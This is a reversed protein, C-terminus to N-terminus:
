SSGRHVAGSLDIQFIYRNGHENRAPLLSVFGGISDLLQQVIFLGLGRGQPKTSVFPQILTNEVSSDVGRGNDAIRVWPAECTVMITPESVRQGRQAEKLWYESNLVLNDVIQILRGRNMRVRFTKFPEGIEFVIQSDRFRDTYFEQLEDFLDRLDIVERSERVYKLSPALHSIQKRLAAAASLVHETFETIEARQIGDRRLRRLFARTRSALSDAVQHIEHSLAEAILGLGALESFEEIQTELTRIKPEMYDAMEGVKRAQPLFATIEALLAGAEELMSAADSPLPADKKRRGGHVAKGVDDLRHSLQDSRQELEKAEVSTKRMEAIPAALSEFGALEGGRKAEYENYSRRLKEYANNIIKTAEGMLLFFNHSYPSAILGERDTKERLDQNRKASLAIYGIVNRPRLGYYSRGSTQEAALDLWDNGDVGYPRLGFGSRYIRVGAQSRVYQSFEARRDFVPVSELDTGRLQFEDIEGEFPGPDAIKREEGTDAIAGHEVGHTYAVGGLGELRRNETFEIFWGDEGLYRAGQLAYRNDDSTLSDFFDRGHDASILRHFRPMEDSKLPRLRSLRFRGNVRLIGEDYRIAFRGVAAERVSGALTELDIRQGDISVLVRFDRGTGFPFILQSLRRVLEDRSRGIWEEPNRLGSIRLTTGTPRATPECEILHVPVDGLRDYETFDSWRFAVHYVTRSKNKRTLMDLVDGLRQTSLRGLGKDGLPTRGAPTTRGERKMERKHSLSITLWGRRIEELDMGFGDDEITIVGVSGPYASEQETLVANTDIEVSAFSADADYANKVLELIATIEDSVLEEGLQRVVAASIDFREEAM